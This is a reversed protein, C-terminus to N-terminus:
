RHVAIQLFPNFNAPLDLYSIQSERSEGSGLEKDNMLGGKAVYKVPLQSASPVSPLPKKYQTSSSSSSSSSSLSSPLASPNLNSPAAPAASSSHPGLTRYLERIIQKIDLFLIQIPTRHLLNPIFTMRVGIGSGGTGGPPHNIAGNAGDTLVGTLAGSVGQSHSFSTWIPVEDFYHLIIFVLNERKWREENRRFCHYLIPMRLSRVLSKAM